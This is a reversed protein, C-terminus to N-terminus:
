HTSDLMRRVILAFASREAINELSDASPEAEM